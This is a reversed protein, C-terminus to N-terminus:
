EPQPGIAYDSAFSSLSAGGTGGSLSVTITTPVPQVTSVSVSETKKISCVEECTEYVELTTANTSIPLGVKEVVTVSGIIGSVKSAGLDLTIVPGPCGCPGNGPCACGVPPFPVATYGIVSQETQGAAVSWAATFNLGPSLTPTPLLIPTVIIKAATISSPSTTAYSFDNYLAGDFICGGSGLLIYSQLTGTVCSPAANAFPAFALLLAFAAALVFKTKM